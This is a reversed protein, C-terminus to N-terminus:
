SEASVSLPATPAFNITATGAFSVELIAARLTCQNGAPADSDCVGDGVNIDANDGLTDDTFSTPAPLLNTILPKQQQYVFNATAGKRQAFFYVVALLLLIISANKKMATLESITSPEHPRFVFRM